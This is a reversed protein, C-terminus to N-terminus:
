DDDANAENARDNQEVANARYRTEETKSWVAKAEDLATRLPEVLEPFEIEDLAKFVDEANSTQMKGEKCVDDSRQLRQATFFSFQLLRFSKKLFSSSTSLDGGGQGHLFGLGRMISSAMASDLRQGGGGQGHLLGLGRMISSAMASDLRQGQGRKDTIRGVAARWEKAVHAAVPAKIQSSKEWTTMRRVEEREEVGVSFVEFAASEWSPLWRGM